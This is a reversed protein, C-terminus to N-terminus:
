FEEELGRNLRSLIDTYHKGVKRGGIALAFIPPAM